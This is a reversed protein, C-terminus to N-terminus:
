RLNTTWQLNEKLAQLSQDPLPNFSQFKKIGALILAGALVAFAGGVVGFCAWLSLESAWHLLYVLMLSLLILAIVGVGAGIALAQVANRSKQFDAKIETRLLALQQKFLEQADNIIGSVLTSLQVESPSQVDHPM